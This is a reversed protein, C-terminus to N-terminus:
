LACRERYCVASESTRGTDATKTFLPYIASYFHPIIRCKVRQCKEATRMEVVAFYMSHMASYILTAPM